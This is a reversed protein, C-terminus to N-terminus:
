PETNFELEPVMPVTEEGLRYFVTTQKGVAGPHLYPSFGGSRGPAPRAGYFTKGRPEDLKKLPIRDSFHWYVSLFSAIVCTVIVGGLFYEERDKRMWLERFYIAM